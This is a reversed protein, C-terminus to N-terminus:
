QFCNSQNKLKEKKSFILFDFCNSGATILLVVPLLQKSKKIKELFSFNESIIPMQKKNIISWIVVYLMFIVALM